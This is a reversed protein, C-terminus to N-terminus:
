ELKYYDKVIKDTISFANQFASSSTNYQSYHHIFAKHLFARNALKLVNNLSNVSASSNSLVSLYKSGLFHRNQYLQSYKSEELTTKPFSITKLKEFNFLKTVNENASGRYVIYNGLSMCSTVSMSRITQNIIAEWRPASEYLSFEKRNNPSSIMKLLKYKDDLVLSLFYSFHQNEVPQFISALQKSGLQNLDDVSINIEFPGAQSVKYLLSNELLFICESLNHLKSMSFLTNYNQIADKTEYLRVFVIIFSIKPYDARLKEIIYCATGACGGSPSLIILLSNIIVDIKDIELRLRNSVDEYMEPGKIYYYYSWNNTPGEVTNFVFSNPNFGWHHNKPRSFVDGVNSETMDVLISRPEFYQNPKKEFFMSESANKYEENFESSLLPDSINNDNFINSYFSYALQIGCNGFCLTLVSM